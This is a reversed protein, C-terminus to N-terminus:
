KTDIKKYTVSKYDILNLLAANTLRDNSKQSQLASMQVQILKDRFDLLDPPFVEKYQQYLATFNQIDRDCFFSSTQLYDLFRKGFSFFDDYPYESSSILNLYTADPLQRQLHRFYMVLMTYMYSLKQHNFFCEDIKTLDYESDFLHEHFITLVQQAIYDDLISLLALNKNNSSKGPQEKRPARSTGAVPM